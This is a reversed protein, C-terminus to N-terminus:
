NELEKLVQQIDEYCFGRSLGFRLLSAKKSYEDKGKLSKLKNQLLCKLIYLYEINDIDNIYKNITENDINKSKLENTIKIKGWKNFRFKDNIFAKVYRDSNIFNNEYLKKIIFNIEQETLIYKSNLYKIIDHECKEGRSSYVSAKNLTENLEQDNM